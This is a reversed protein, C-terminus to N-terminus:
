KKPHDPCYLTAHWTCQDDTVGSKRRKRREFKVSGLESKSYVQRLCTDLYVTRDNGVWSTLHTAKPLAQVRASGLVVSPDYEM